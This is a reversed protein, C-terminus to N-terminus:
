GGGLSSLAVLAKNSDQSLSMEDAVVEVKVTEKQEKKISDEVIQDSPNAQGFFNVAGGALQRGQELAGMGSSSSGSGGGAGGSPQFKQRAIAAVNALGVTTAIGAAVGARVPADPTPLSLQSVYAKQAGEYTKVLAEAISAAKQINFAKRQQRESDGAFAATLTRIVSLTGEFAQMRIDARAQEAEKLMRTKEEENAGAFKLSAEQYSKEVDFIREWLNRTYILRPSEDVKPLEEPILDIDSDDKKFSERIEKARQEGDQIVQARAEYFAKENLLGQARFETLRDLEAQVQLENEEFERASDSLQRMRIMELFDYLEQALNKMAENHAKANDQRKKQETLQIITIDQEFKVIQDNFQEQEDAQKQMVKQTTGIAQLFKNQAVFSNEIIKLNNARIQSETKAVQILVRLREIELEITEKGLAKRKRLEFDMAEVKEEMLKIEEKAIRNLENLKEREAKMTEEIQKRRKEEALRTKEAAETEIIGFAKLAEIAGWIVAVFPFFISIAIKIGTGLRDFKQAMDKLWNSAKQVADSVLDFHAVLLGVAVIIAGIGTSILAVRFAKTALTGKGIAGSLANQAAALLNSGAAQAKINLLSTKDLSNRIAMLANLVGQAAQIKTIVELLEENEDGLLATVGVFGQYGATVTEGLQLAATLNSGRQALGDVAADADIITRRFRVAEKQLDKYQKTNTQGALALEYMRDEIEGLRASLPKMDGHIDEFTADLNATSKNVADTAQISKEYQINLDALSKRVEDVSKHNEGYTKTLRDIEKETNSIEVRLDATSKAAKSVEEATNGTDIRARVIVEREDAM